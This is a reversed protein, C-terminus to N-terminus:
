HLQMGPSGTGPQGFCSPQCSSAAPSPAPLSSHNLWIGAQPSLLPLPGSVVHDRIICVSFLCGLVWKRWGSSWAAEAGMLPLGQRQLFKPM